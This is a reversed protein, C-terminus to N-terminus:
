KCEEILRVKRATDVSKPTSFYALIFEALSLVVIKYDTEILKIFTVM